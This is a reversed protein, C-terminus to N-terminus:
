RAIRRVYSAPTAVPPRVGASEGNRRLRASKQRRPLGRTSALWIKVFLQHWTEVHRLFDADAKQDLRLRFKQDFAKALIKFEDVAEVVHPEVEVDAMGVADALIRLIPDRGIAPMGNVVMQFVDSRRPDMLM